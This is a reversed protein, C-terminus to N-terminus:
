ISLPFQNNLVVAQTLKVKMAMSIYKEKKECECLTPAEKM